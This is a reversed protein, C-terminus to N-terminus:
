SDGSQAISTECRGCGGCNEYGPGLQQCCLGRAIIINNIGRDTKPRFGDWPLDGSTCGVVLCLLWTYSCAPWGSALPIPQCLGLNRGRAGSRYGPLWRQSLYSPPSDIRTTRGWSVPTGTCHCPAGATYWCRSRRKKVAFFPLLSLICRTRVRHFRPATAGERGAFPEPRPYPGFLRLCRSILRQPLLRPARLLPRRNPLKYPTPSYPKCSAAVRAYMRRYAQCTGDFPRCLRIMDSKDALGHSTSGLVSLHIVHCCAFASWFWARLFCFM